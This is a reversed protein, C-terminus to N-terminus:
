KVKKIKKDLEKFDKSKINFSMLSHQQYIIDGTNGNIITIIKNSNIQNYMLYYFDTTKNDLIMKEIEEYEVIKYDFSFDKMLDEIEPSKKETVTWANYGYLFTRDIYITNSKINKLEPKVYDEYLDTSVKNKISNNAFQLFNKLYGLRFNLLDGKLEKSYAGAQQRLSIDPTFYITGIKSSYWKLEGEKPKKKIKDVVHFDLIHFGYDVTMGSSKSKTIGINMFQALVDDVKVESENFEDEMILEYPTVDWVENLINEFTSKSYFKPLVFKTTKTTFRNLTKKNLKKHKYMAFSFDGVRVQSYSFTTSIITLTFLLTRFKM